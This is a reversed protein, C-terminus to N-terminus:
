DDSNCSMKNSFLNDEDEDVASDKSELREASAQCGTDKHGSSSSVQSNSVKQSVRAPPVTFKGGGSDKATSDAVAIQGDIECRAMEKNMYESNDETSSEGESGDEDHDDDTEYETSERSQEMKLRAGRAREFDRRSQENLRATEENECELVDGFQAAIYYHSQEMQRDWTTYSFFKYDCPLLVNTKWELLDAPRMWRTYVAIFDKYGVHDVVHKVLKIRLKDVEAKSFKKRILAPLETTLLSWFEIIQKTMLECMEVVEPLKQGAPLYPTFIEQLQMLDHLHRQIKGRLLMRGAIKLKGKLSESKSEVAKILFEEELMMYWEIYFMFPSMWEFFREVAAHTLMTVNDQMVLLMGNLDIVEARISNAGHAVIQFARDSKDADQIALAPYKEIVRAKAELMTKGTKVRSGFAPQDKQKTLFQAWMNRSRNKLIPLPASVNGSTPQAVDRLSSMERANIAGPQRPMDADLSPKKRFLFM